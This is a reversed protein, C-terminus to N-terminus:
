SFTITVSVQVIQGNLVNLTTISTGTLGGYGYYGGNTGAQCATPSTSTVLASTTSDCTGFVTNVQNITGAQTATFQGAMTMSAPLSNVNYTLVLGTTCYYYNAYCLAYAPNINLNEVIACFGHTSVCPPTSSTVSILYSSPVVYGAMLEILFSTPTLSNQFDRHEAISGDRNKIDIIWHGHVKIGEQAGKDEAAESAQPPPPADANLFVYNASRTTSEPTKFQASASHVSALLIAASLLSLRLRAHNVSIM